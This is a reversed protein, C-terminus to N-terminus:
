CSRTTSSGVACCTTAPWCRSCDPRSSCSWPSRNSCGRIRRRAGPALVTARGARPVRYNAAPRRTVFAVRGVRGVGDRVAVVWSGCHRDARDGDVAGGTHEETLGATVREPHGVLHSRRGDAFGDHLTAAEAGVVRPLPTVVGLHREAHGLDGRLTAVEGRRLREVPDGVGERRPERAARGVDARLGPRHEGLGLEQRATVCSRSDRALSSRCARVPRVAPLPARM